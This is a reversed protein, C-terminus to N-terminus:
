LYNLYDQKKNFVRIINVNNKKEDIKYFAIYNGFSFTHYGMRALRENRAPGYFRPSDKLNSLRYEYEDLLNSATTSNNLQFAIYHVMNDLDLAAAASHAIDFTM